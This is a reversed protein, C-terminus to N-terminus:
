DDYEIANAKHARPIQILPEIMECIEFPMGNVNMMLSVPEVQILNKGVNTVREEESVGTGSESNDESECDNYPM